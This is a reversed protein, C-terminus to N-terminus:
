HDDVTEKECLQNLLVSIEAVPLVADAAVRHLASRPMMPVRATDPDQVVVFGGAQRVALAGDAGDENGGSLVIALLTEGYVDAASEFLVDISPRSFHVLDDASLSIRPGAGLLMHYDSPAFYIRGPLVAQKDDPECVALACRAAFIGSLLSSRDRPQHVVVFVSVNGGAPLGPLLEALVEVGGASGGIAIARIGRMDRRAPVTANM